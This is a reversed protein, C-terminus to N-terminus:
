PSASHGPPTVRGDTVQWVHLAHAPEQAEPTVWFGAVVPLVPM